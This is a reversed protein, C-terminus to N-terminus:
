EFGTMMDTLDDRQDKDVDTFLKNFEEETLNKDNVFFQKSRVVGRADRVVIAPGSTRHLDGHKYWAYSKADSEPLKQGDPLTTSQCWTDTIHAPGNDRHYMGDADYFNIYYSHAGVKKSGKKVGNIWYVYETVVEDNDDFTIKIEAAGKDNHLKGNQYWAEYPIHEPKYVDKYKHIVAPGGIRHKLGHKFWCEKTEDEFQAKEPHDADEFDQKDIIILAPGKERHLRGQKDRWAKRKMRSGDRPLRRDESPEDSDEVETPPKRGVYRSDTDIVSFGRKPLDEYAADLGKYTAM